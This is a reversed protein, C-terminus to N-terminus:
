RDFIEMAIASAMVLELITTGFLLMALAFTALDMATHIM